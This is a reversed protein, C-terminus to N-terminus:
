SSTEENRRQGPMAFLGMQAQRKIAEFNPDNFASTNHDNVPGASGGDPPHLLHTYPSVLSQEQSSPTSQMGLPPPSIPGNNALPVLLPSMSANSTHNTPFPMNGPVANGIKGNQWNPPGNAPFELERMMSKSRAKKRRALLVIAFIATLLALFSTGGVLLLVGTSTHSTRATSATPTQGTNTHPSATSPTSGVTPTVMPSAAVPATATASLPRTPVPTPTPNSTPNSTPSPSPTPTPVPANYTLTASSSLTAPQGGGSVAVIKYSGSVLTTAPVVFTKSFSGNSNSVASSISFNASGNGTEWSLQVSSGAPNYNSGTITAQTGATLISPSISIQPASESLVTYNNAQVTLSGFKACVTYTGLTTGNPWRLWGSFSGSHLTGAQFDPVIYCYTEIMYGFSVQEEDPGPLDSGSIAIIAGVPGASPSSVVSGSINKSAAHAPSIAHTSAYFWIALCLIVGTALCISNALRSGHKMVIIRLLTSSAFFVFLFV